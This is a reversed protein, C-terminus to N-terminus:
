LLGVPLYYEEMSLFVFLTHLAIPASLQVLTIDNFPLNCTSDNCLIKHAKILRRLRKMGGGGEDCNVPVGTALINLQSAGIASILYNQM